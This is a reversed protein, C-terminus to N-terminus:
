SNLFTLKIISNLVLDMGNQEGFQQMFADKNSPGIVNVLDIGIFDNEGDIFYTESTRSNFVSLHITKGFYNVPVSVENLIECNHIWKEFPIKKSELVISESIKMPKAPTDKIIHGGREIESKRYKNYILYNIHQITFIFDQRKLSIYIGYHSSPFLNLLIHNIPIKLIQQIAADFTCSFQYINSQLIYSHAQKSEYQKLKGCYQPKGSLIDELDVYIDPHKKADIMSNLYDLFLQFEKNNNTEPWDGRPEDRFIYRYLENYNQEFVIKNLIEYNSESSQIEAFYPLNYAYEYTAEFPKIKFPENSSVEDISPFYQFTNM